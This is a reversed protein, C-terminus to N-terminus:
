PPPAETPNTAAGTGAPGPSLRIATGLSFAMRGNPPLGRAPHGLQSLPSLCMRPLPFRPWARTTRRYGLIPAGIETGGPRGAYSRKVSTDDGNQLARRFLAFRNESSFRSLGVGWHPGTLYGGRNGPPISPVMLRSVFVGVSAPLGHRATAMASAMAQVSAPNASVGGPPRMSAQSPSVSLGRGATPPGKESM